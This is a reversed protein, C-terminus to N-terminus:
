QQRGAAHQEQVPRIPTEAPVRRVAIRGEVHLELRAIRVPAHAVELGYEIDGLRIAKPELLDHGHRDVIKGDNQALGGRWRSSARAPHTSRLRPGDLKSM